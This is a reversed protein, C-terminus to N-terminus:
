VSLYGTSLIGHDGGATRWEITLQGLVRKGKEGDKDKPGDGEGGGEVTPSVLFAVQEVDRARLLPRRSPDSDDWNLGQATWGDATDLRVSELSIHGTAVNELQAELIACGNPLAGTKSRVTLCQQALFQYLKRFTRTRPPLPPPTPELEEGSKPPASPGETYRVTVALVHNGEERLDFKVIKQVSEAPELDGVESEDSEDAGSLELEVDTTPTEMSASIRVATVKRPTENNASLCCSFCEGVSVTGFAPPLM